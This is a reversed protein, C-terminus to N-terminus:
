DGVLVSIALDLELLEALGGGGLSTSSSAVLDGQLINVMTLTGDRTVVLMNADKCDIAPIM